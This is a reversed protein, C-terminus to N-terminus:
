ASQVQRQHIKENVSERRRNRWFLGIALMVLVFGALGPWLFQTNSTMPPPSSQQQSVHQLYATLQDAEEETIPQGAFAAQMVPFPSNVIFNRTAEAGFQSHIPTLDMAYTGGAVTLKSDSVQHCSLCSPGGNALRVRGSFLRRGEAVLQQSLTDSSTTDQGAVQAPMLQLLGIVLLTSVVPRFSDM